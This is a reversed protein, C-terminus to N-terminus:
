EKKDDKNSDESTEDKNEGSKQEESDENAPTIEKTEKDPEESKEPEPKEQSEESTEEKKEPEPQEKAEESREEPKEEFKEEKKEVPKEEEKKEEKPKDKKAEAPLNRKLIHKREQDEIKDKSSYIKAYGTSVSKGFGPNIYNVIIQEKKSNLKDALEARVLDRNPTKEGEHIITFHVETRNLLPNNRKSDINIEM